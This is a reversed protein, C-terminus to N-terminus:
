FVNVLCYIYESWQFEQVLIVYIQSLKKHQKYYNKLAASLVERATELLEKSTPNM